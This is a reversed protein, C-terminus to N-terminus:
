VIIIEVNSVVDLLEDRQAHDESGAGGDVSDKNNDKAYLWDNGDDGFLKDNGGGAYLKDNGNGGHLEDNGDSGEIIDNGGNGFVTDNGGGAGITSASENGTIKDGGRGGTLREVDSRVNDKEAAIVPGTPTEQFQPTGDNTLNDNMTVIVGRTRDGYTVLDSGTGGSMDDAGAGGNLLDNGANGKCTDNGGGGNLQDIQSGGVLSDNGDGGNLVSVAGDNVAPQTTPFGNSGILTDNGGNGDLTVRGVLVTGANTTTPAASIFDNGRGGIVHEVDNKVNDGEAPHEINAPSGDNAQNDLTVRVAGARSAYTVTDIGAGGSMVDGGLQGDLIDNGGDGNLVDKGSGTTLIDNGEGGSVTAPKEIGPLINLRDNGGLLSVSIKQVNAYTFTGITVDNARVLLQGADNRSLSVGNAEADGTVTLTGNSLSATVALLRRSELSEFM